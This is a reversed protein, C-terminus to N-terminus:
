VYIKNSSFFGEVLLSTKDLAHEMDLIGGSMGVSIVKYTEKEVDSVMMGNKFSIGKGDVLIATNNGIRITNVVNFEQM